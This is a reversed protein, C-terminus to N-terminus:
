PSNTIEHPSTQHFGLLESSPSFGPPFFGLLAVRENDVYFMPLLPPNEHPAFGQLRPTQTVVIHLKADKACSSAYPLCLRGVVPPCRSHLRLAAAHSSCHESPFVGHASSVHFLTLLYLTSLPMLLNLFGTPALTQALCTSARFSSSQTPFVSFPFFDWPLLRLM